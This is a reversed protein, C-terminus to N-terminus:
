RRSSGRGLSRARRGPATSFLMSASSERRTSSSRPRLSARPARDARPRRDVGLPPGPAGPPRRPREAVEEEGLQRPPDLAEGALVRPAAGQKVRDGEEGAIPDLDAEQDVDGIGGAQLRDPLDVELSPDM